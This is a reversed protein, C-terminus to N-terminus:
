PHKIINYIKLTNITDVPKIVLGWYHDNVRFRWIKKNGELPKYDLSTHKSNIKLYDVAKDLKKKVQFKIAKDNAEPTVIVNIM